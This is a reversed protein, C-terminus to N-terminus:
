ARVTKGGPFSGGSGMKYSTIHTGSGIQVYSSTFIRSWVPVRVKVELEGLGYGTALQAVVASKYCQAEVLQAVAHRELLSKLQFV